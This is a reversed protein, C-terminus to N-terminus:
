SRKKKLMKQYKDNIQNFLADNDTDLERFDGGCQKYLLSSYLRLIRMSDEDKPFNIYEQILNEIDNIKKTIEAKLKPDLGENDLEKKLYEITTKARALQQPHEDQIGLIYLMLDLSYLHCVGITEVWKPYSKVGYVDKYTNQMMKMLGSHLELGYGYMSAFTDAFKENTYAARNFKLNASMSNNKMYNIISKGAFVPPFNGLLEIDKIVSDKISDLSILKPKTKKKISKFLSLMSTIFVSTDYVRNEKNMVVAQFFGHGIEHLIVAILEADSYITNDILESHIAIVLNVNAFANNYKFGEPSSILSNYLLESEQPSFFTDISFAYANAFPSPQLYMTFTKFGFIKKALRNFKLIEPDLNTKSTIQKDALKHRIRHLQKQLPLVVDKGFYVENLSFM